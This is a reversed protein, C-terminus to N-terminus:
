ATVSRGPKASRGPGAEPPPTGSAPEGGDTEAPKAEPKRYPIFCSVVFGLLGIVGVAILANRLGTNRATQNMQVLAGVESAPRREVILYARLQANSITQADKRFVEIIAPKAQAQFTTSAQLQTTFSGVLGAMLVAGAIACGFAGGLNSMARSLGSVESQLKPGAAGQTTNVIPANILGIGLGSVVMGPLFDLGTATAKMELAVMLIGAAFTLMGVQIVRKPAVVSTLKGVRAAVIIVAITLPLVLLGSKFASYGLAMQMFVPTVFLFGAQMFGLAIIGLIGFLVARSKLMGIQLLPDRGARFMHAEWVGFAVLVIVGSIVFPVVPSIGGQRIITRGLAVVPERAALWGYKSAQLVGMVVLALGLASLVAGLGDLKPRPGVRVPKPVKIRVALTITVIVVAVEMLFSVRWTLFTTLFGCLLPGLAAGMAATAGVAAFATVRPRGAPFISGVIAYIAPIMLASGLGELVSWGTMMMGLSMSFATILAGVGYMAVGLIFVFRRGWIDGLKGGILMFAAMVLSYTVLASQVGTVTTHLSHVVSSVAVNMATTDYANIFQAMCLALLIAKYPLTQAQPQASGVSASAGPTAM